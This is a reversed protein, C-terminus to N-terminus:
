LAYKSSLWSDFQSALYNIEYVVLIIKNKLSNSNKIYTLEKLIMKIEHCM